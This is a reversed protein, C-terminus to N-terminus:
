PRQDEPAGRLSQNAGQEQRRKMEAAHRWAVFPVALTEGEPTHVVAVPRIPMRDFAGYFRIDVTYGQNQKLLQTARRSSVCTGTDRAWIMRTILNWMHVYLWYLAIFVAPTAALLGLIWSGPLLLGTLLASGTFIVPLGRTSIPALPPFEAMRLAALM